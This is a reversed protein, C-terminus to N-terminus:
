DRYNIKSYNMDVPGYIGPVSGKDTYQWMVISEDSAEPGGPNYNAIWFKYGSFKDKFKTTYIHNSTYIIPRRGTANEVHALWKKMNLILEESSTEIESDLVPPLEQDMDSYYRLFHEAQEIADGEPRFFHYCGHLLNLERLAKRNSEWKRDVHNIGETAKCYIFSILTDSKEMFLDWDIDGQYRSIDIGYSNYGEPIVPLNLEQPTTFKKTYEYYFYICASLVSGLLFLLIYKSRRKSRKRRRAM